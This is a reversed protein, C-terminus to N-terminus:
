DVQKIDSHLTRNIVNSIILSLKDIVFDVEKPTVMLNYGIPTLVEFILEKIEKDSLTGIEGLLRKKDMNSLSDVDEKLYNIQTVLKLKNTSNNINNKSYSFKKVIFDITDSVITVADVVTPVGIAIVPVGLTKYSLDGRSNGVGSGPNIGANTIQITKNVRSISSSALADVIILFDPKTKEIIGLVIDKTEIGTLGVVSPKIASVCRYGDLVNVGDLDFLHKTIIISDSVKPGLADPTSNSNGLGVVLCKDTDLINMYDFFVHLENEFVKELNKQNNIDTVDEFSITVYRGKKKNCCNEAEKSIDIYDVIIKDEIRRKTKIGKTNKNPISEILLDTRVNYKELDIEHSM